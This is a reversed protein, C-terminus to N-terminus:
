TRWYAWRSSRAWRPGCMEASYGGDVLSAEILPLSVSLNSRCLYCGSYLVFLLGVTVIQWRRLRRDDSLM